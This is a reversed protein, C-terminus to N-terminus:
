FWAKAIQFDPRDIWELIEESESDRAESGDEYVRFGVPTPVWTEGLRSSWDVPTVELEHTPQVAETIPNSRQSHANGPEQMFFSAIGAFVVLCAVSAMSSWRYVRGLFLARTKISIPKSEPQALTVQPPYVESLFHADDRLQEALAFLGEDLMSGDESFQGDGNVDDGNFHDGNVHDDRFHDGNIHSDQDGARFRM